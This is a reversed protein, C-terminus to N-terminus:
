INFTEGAKSLIVKNPFIKTFEKPNITHVPILKKPKLTEVLKKISEIDAHGSTHIHYFKGKEKMKNIFNNLKSQKKLYEEWMSYIVIANDDYGKLKKIAEFNGDRIIM